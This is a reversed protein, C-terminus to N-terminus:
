DRGANKREEPLPLAPQAVAATKVAVPHDEPLSVVDGPSYKVGDLVETTLLTVSVTNMGTLGADVSRHRRRGSRVRGAAAGQRGAGGQRRRDPEERGVESVDVTQGPKVPEGAVFSDRIIKVKM